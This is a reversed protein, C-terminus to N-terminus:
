CNSFVNTNHRVKIYKIEIIAHHQDVISLCHVTRVNLYSSMDLSFVVLCFVLNKRVQKGCFKNKDQKMGKNNKRKTKM